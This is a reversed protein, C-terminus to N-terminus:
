LPLHFYTEISRFESKIELVIFINNSKDSFHYFFMKNYNPAECCRGTIQQFLSKGELSWVQIWEVISSDVCGVENPHEVHQLNLNMEAALCFTESKPSEVIRSLDAFRVPGIRILEISQLQTSLQKM